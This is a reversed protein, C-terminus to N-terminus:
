SCAKVFAYWDINSLPSIFQLEKNTIFVMSYTYAHVYTHMCTHVYIHIYTHIFTHIYTHIYTCIYTHIHIHLYKDICKITIGVGKKLNMIKLNYEQKYM